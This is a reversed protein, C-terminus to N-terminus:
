FLWYKSMLELTAKRKESNIKATYDMMESILDEDIPRTEPMKDTGCLPSKKYAKALRKHMQSPSSESLKKRKSSNLNLDHVVKIAASATSIGELLIIEHMQLLYQHDDKAPRGDKKGFIALLANELRKQDSPAPKAAYETNGIVYELVTRLVVDGTPTRKGVKNSLTNKRPRAM